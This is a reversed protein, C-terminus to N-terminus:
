WRMERAQPACLGFGFFRGRLAQASPGSLSDSFAKHGKEVFPQMVSLTRNRAFNDGRGDHSTDNGLCMDESIVSELKIGGRARPPVRALSGQPSTKRCASGPWGTIAPSKGYLAPTKKISVPVTDRLIFFLWVKRHSVERWPRVARQRHGARRQRLDARGCGHAPDREPDYQM